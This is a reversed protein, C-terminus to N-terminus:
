RQYLFDYVKGVWAKFETFTMMRKAANCTFCCSVSNGKTYGSSNDYRDIGGGIGGCYSCPNNVLIAFEDFTLSWEQNRVKANRKYYRRKARLPSDPKKKTRSIVERRLCGCSKTGGNILNFYAVKSIKGCDCRCTYWSKGAIYYRDVAILRGFRQGTYDVRRM